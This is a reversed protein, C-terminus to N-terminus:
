INLETLLCMLQKWFNHLAPKQNEQSLTQLPEDGHVDHHVDHLVQLDLEDDHGLVEDPLDQNIVISNQSSLM